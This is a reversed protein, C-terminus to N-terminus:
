RRLLRGSRLFNTLTRMGELRNELHGTFEPKILVIMEEMMRFDDELLMSLEVAAKPIKTYGFFALITRLM